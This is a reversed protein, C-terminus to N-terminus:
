ADPEDNAQLVELLEQLAEKEGQGTLIPLGNIVPVVDAYEDPMGTTAVIADADVRSPSLETVRYQSVQVEIGHEKLFEEIKVRLMTSTAIGTACVVYVRKEMTGGPVILLARGIKVLLMPGTWIEANEEKREHVDTAQLSDPLNHTTCVLM